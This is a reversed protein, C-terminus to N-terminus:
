ELLPSVIYEVFYTKLNGIPTNRLILVDRDEKGVSNLGVTVGSDAGRRTAGYYTFDGADRGKTSRSSTDQGTRKLVYQIFGDSISGSSSFTVNKLSEIIKNRNASKYGAGEPGYYNFFDNQLRKFAERNMVAEHKGVKTDTAKRIADSGTEAKFNEFRRSGAGEGLQKRLAELVHVRLTASM